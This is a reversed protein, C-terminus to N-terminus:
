ANTYSCRLIATNVMVPPEAKSSLLKDEEASAAAACGCLRPHFQPNDAANFNLLSQIATHMLPIALHTHRVRIEVTILDQQKRTANHWKQCTLRSLQM